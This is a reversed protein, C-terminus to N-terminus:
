SQIQQGLEHFKKSCYLLGGTYTNDKTLINKVEGVWIEHDNIKFVKKKRCVLAWESGTLIPLVVGNETIDIINYDLKEQLSAFPKTPIYTTMNTKTNTSATLGRSFDTVLNISAICPSLLHVAFYNLKHIAESTFSPVQLNFQILPEPKLSLSTMSSITLGHYQEKPTCPTAAATLIMAQSAVKAMSDKYLQQLSTLTALKPKLKSFAIPM